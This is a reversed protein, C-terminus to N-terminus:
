MHDNIPIQTPAVAFNLGKELVSITSPNIEASSLNVVSKLQENSNPPRPKKDMLKKFKIKHNNTSFMLTNSHHNRCITIWSNWDKEELTSKLLDELQKIEIRTQTPEM